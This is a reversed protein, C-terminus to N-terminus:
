ERPEVSFSGMMVGLQGNGMFSINRGKTVYFNVVYQGTLTPLDIWVKEWGQDLAIGPKAGEAILARQNELDFIAVGHTQNPTGHDGAEIGFNGGDISKVWAAIRYTRGNTLEAFQVAVTHVGDRPVAILQLVPQGPVAPTGDLIQANLGGIGAWTVGAITPKPLDNATTAQTVPAGSPAPLPAIPAPPEPPGVWGHLVFLTLVFSIVTTAIGGVIYRAKVM